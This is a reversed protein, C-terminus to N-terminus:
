NFKLNCNFVKPLDGILNGIQFFSSIYDNEKIMRKIILYNYDNQRNILEILTKAGVNFEAKTSKYAKYANFEAQLSLKYINANSNYGNWVQYVRREVSNIVDQLSHKQLSAKSKAEFINFYQTGGKYFLPIHIKIGYANKRPSINKQFVDNEKLYGDRWIQGFLTIRPMLYSKQFKIEQRYAHLICKANLIDPNNLMVLYKLSELNNIKSFQSLNISDMHTPAKTGIIYRFDSEAKILDFLYKELNSEVDALYTKARLLTTRTESGNQVQFLAQKLHKKAIKVNTNQIDVIERSTLLNQYSEITKLIVQNLTKNYDHYLANIKIDAQIFKLLTSGGTFIEQDIKLKVDNTGSKMSEPYHFFQDLELSINPLFDAIPRSKELIAIKLKKKAIEIQQNSELASSIANDLNYSANAYNIFCLSICFILKSLSKFM